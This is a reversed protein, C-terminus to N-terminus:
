LSRSTSNGTSTRLRDCRRAQVCANSDCEVSRRWNPETGDEHLPEFRGELLHIPFDGLIGSAEYRGGLIAKGSNTMTTKM